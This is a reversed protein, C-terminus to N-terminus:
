FSDLINMTPSAKQLESIARLLPLTKKYDKLVVYPISDKLIQILDRMEKSIGSSSIGHLLEECFNIDSSIFVSIISLLEKYASDENVRFHYYISDIMYEKNKPDNELKEAYFEYARRYIEDYLSTTEHKAYTKTFRKIMDPLGAEEVFSYKESLNQILKQANFVGAINEILEPDIKRIISLLIILKKDHQPLHDLTVANVNRINKFEETPAELLQMIRFVDGKFNHFASAILSLGVPYGNTLEIIAEIISPESILSQKNLYEEIEIFTFNQLYMYCINTDFKAKLEREMDIQSSLVLLFETRANKLFANFFFNYIPQLKEFDDIIIVVKRNSCILDFAQLFKKFLIAKYDVVKLPAKKLSEVTNTLNKAIAKIDAKGSKTRPLEKDTLTNLPVYASSVQASSLKLSPSPKKEEPKANQFLEKHLPSPKLPATKQQPPQSSVKQPSAKARLSALKSKADNAKFSNKKDDERENESTDINSIIEKEAPIKEYIQEDTLTGLLFNRYAEDFKSFVTGFQPEKQVLLNRFQVLFNVIGLVESLIVNKAEFRIDIVSPAINKDKCFLSVQNLIWTKGSGEDGELYYIYPYYCNSSRSFNYLGYKFTALYEQRFFFKKDNEPIKKKDLFGM